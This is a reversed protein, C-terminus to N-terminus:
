QYTMNVLTSFKSVIIDLNTVSKKQETEVLNDFLYQLSIDLERLFATQNSTVSGNTLSQEINSLYPKLLYIKHPVQDYLASFNGGLTPLGWSQESLLEFIVGARVLEMRASDYDQHSILARATSVHSQALYVNAKFNAFGTDGLRDEQLSIAHMYITNISLFSIGVIAVLAVAWVINCKKWGNDARQPKQEKNTNIFISALRLAEKGDDTLEYDGDTNAKIFGKLKDLHFTLHGSSEIGVKKKLGSFSLPSASLSELIKIRMPHGLSDFFAGKMADSGTDSESDNRM